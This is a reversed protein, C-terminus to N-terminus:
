LHSNRISTHKIDIHIYLLHLSISLSGTQRMDGSPILCKDQFYVVQETGTHLCSPGLTQVWHHEEANVKDACSQPGPVSSSSYCTCGLILDVAIDRCDGPVTESMTIEMRTSWQCLQRFLSVQQQIIGETALIHLTLSLQNFHTYLLPPIIIVPSFQLVLLSVQWLAVKDVM